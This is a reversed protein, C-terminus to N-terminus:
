VLICNRLSDVVTSVSVTCIKLCNNTVLLFRTLLLAAAVPVGFLIDVACVCVPLFISKTCIVLIVSWQFFLKRPITRSICEKKNWPTVHSTEFSTKHKERTDINEPFAWYRHHRINPIPGRQFSVINLERSRSRVGSTGYVTRIRVVQSCVHQAIYVVTPEDCARYVALTLLHYVQESLLYFNRIWPIM